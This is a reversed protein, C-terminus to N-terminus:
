FSKLAIQAFLGFLSLNLKNLLFKIKITNEGGKAAPFSQILMGNGMEKILNGTFKEVSQHHIECNKSLVQFAHDEDSGM